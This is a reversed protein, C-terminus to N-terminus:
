IYIDIGRRRERDIERYRKNKGERASPRRRRACTPGAGMARQKPVQNSVAPPLARCPKANLSSLIPQEGAWPRAPVSRRGRSGQVSCYLLGSTIQMRGGRPRSQLHMLTDTHAPHSCAQREIPQNSSSLSPFPSILPLPCLPLAASTDGGKGLFRLLLCLM